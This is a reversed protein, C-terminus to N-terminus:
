VIYDWLEALHIWRTFSNVFCPALKTLELRVRPDLKEVIEQAIEEGKEPSELSEQVIRHLQKRPFEKKLLRIPEVIGQLADGPFILQKAFEERQEQQEKSGWRFWRQRHRDLDTGAHDFSELVEYAVLNQERATEDKNKALQALEEALRRIRYIPANRHCFVVGAAHTLPTGQFEWFPRDKHERFGFFHVLTDIGKWAPVVWLLDDGGWLLTEIRLAGDTRRWGRGEEEDLMKELLGKLVARRKRQIADDWKKLDEITKCNSQRKGFKNGDLYIVAMKGDLNGIKGSSSDESALMELDRTFNAVVGAQGRYFGEKEIRGFVRRTEVSESVYQLEGQPGEMETTAPRVHDIECAAYRTKDDIPSRDKRNQRPVSVAPQRMQRWRNMALLKERDAQFDDSEKLVDVVFTAHKICHDKKLDDEVERRFSEAPDDGDAEFSFLGTSAGTSIRKLKEYYKTTLNEVMDLLVLSAGRVTSLDQTDYIFNGLNVAEVRLYYMM